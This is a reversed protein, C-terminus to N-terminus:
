NGSNLSLAGTFSEDTDPSIQVDKFTFDRVSKSPGTGMGVTLSSGAQAARSKAFQERAYSGSSKIQGSSYKKLQIRLQASVEMRLLDPDSAAAEYDLGLEIADRFSQWALEGDGFAAHCCGASYLLERRLETPSAALAPSDLAKEFLKLGAM